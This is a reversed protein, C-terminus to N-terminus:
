RFLRTVTGPDFFGLRKVREPSLEDELMPRLDTRLWASTPGVFGRKPAHFHEQPLRERLARRLLLKKICWRVKARDPLRFVEEVLKHDVFPVRIELSHAMALRDSLALIDDPLYTKYDLYLGGTLGSRCGGRLFLNRFRSQAAGDALSAGLAPAYLARRIAAEMRNVYGLFRDAFDAD